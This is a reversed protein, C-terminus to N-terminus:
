FAVLHDIQVNAILQEAPLSPLEFAGTIHNFNILWTLNQLIEISGPPIEFLEPCPVKLFSLKIYSLNNFHVM